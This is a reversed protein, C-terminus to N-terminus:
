EMRVVGRETLHTISNGNSLHPFWAESFSLLRSLSCYTSAWLDVDLGKQSGLEHEEQAM